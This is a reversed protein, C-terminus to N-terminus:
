MVVKYFVTYSFFFIQTLFNIENETSLSFVKLVPQGFTIVYLLVKM